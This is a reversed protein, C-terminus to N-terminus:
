SDGFYCRFLGALFGLDMVLHHDGVAFVGAGSTLIQHGCLSEKQHHKYSLREDVGFRKKDEANINRRNNERQLM